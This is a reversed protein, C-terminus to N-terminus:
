AIDEDLAAKASLGSFPALRSGAHTEEYCLPLHSEVAYFMGGIRRAFPMGSQATLLEGNSEDAWLLVRGLAASRLDHIAADLGDVVERLRQAVHDDIGPYAALNALVLGSAFIHNIVRNQAGDVGRDGAAGTTM